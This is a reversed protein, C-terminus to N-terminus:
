KRNSLLFGILDTFDEASLTEGFNAPMPSSTTEKRNEIEDKPILTVKGQLDVLSLTADSENGQKILGNFVRGDSTAILSARFAADVNRNPLLIDEALRDLGRNGIGDLNPGVQKGVGGLQHCNACNKEFVQQGNVPDTQRSTYLQKRDQILQLLAADIPPITSVLETVRQNLQERGHAKLKEVLAARGLLSVTAKGADISEVLFSAGAPDSSLLDAVQTQEAVTMRSLSQAIVERALDVNATRVATIASEVTAADSKPFAVLEAAVQMLSGAGPQGASLDILTKCLESQLSRSQTSQVLRVVSGRLNGLQFRRIIEAALLRDGSRQDPNLGAVSFRGAALWAYAGGADQDVIEVYAPQGQWSRTDWTVPHATDNRPPFARQIVQGTAALKLQVFNKQQAPKGPDGDHGALFFRLSDPLEFPESRYVGTKQEGKIISSWLPTQQMGDTSNRRNSLVFINEAAPSTASENPLCTWSLADFEPEVTWKASPNLEEHPQFDGVAIWAFGKQDNGDIIEIRALQGAHKRTDLEVRQPTDRSPVPVEHIVQGSDTLLVRVQNRRPRDQAQVETPQGDHGAIRFSLTETLKIPISQLVGTTTEGRSLSDILYLPSQGAAAFQRVGFPTTKGSQTVSWEAAPLSLLDTAIESALSQISGPLERQQQTIGTRLSDLISLQFQRNGAFQNRAIAVIADISKVDAQRAAFELYATLKGPSDASLQQLNDVIFNAAAPSKVALCVDAFLSYAEAPVRPAVRTLRQSDAQFQDRLAIKAAHVLYRDGTRRAADLLAVLEASLDVTAHRAATLAAFRQVFPSTDELGTRILSALEHPTIQETTFESLLQQALCRVSEHQSKLDPKLREPTLRGTRQLTTLTWRALQGDTDPGTSQTVLELFRDLLASEQHSQEFIWRVIAEGRARNATTLESVLAPLQDKKLPTSASHFPAAADRRGADGRYVVKWIRGRERDRGPHNLDVEYHGIIRNYFDAIYLAGDLGFQLNVPRFWPDGPIVFDSEERATMSSGNYVLHNRNVRGTVVNGGFTSRRYVEPFASNEGLVVGGIGTSDHLHEMVNPIYGLGDHPKGFSDHHGGPLVLNIPKTHCDATFIDGFSDIAMGFPNVQGRSVVEIRSGDPRFRFINGSHMTVEHGDRGKVTSQNNFGHCAYIWGDNGLRFSSCMGHTDRSTDFPGYLIERQDVQDDGDTDHLYWIHPISFCIVGDGYPLLGMPINLGDAFTTVKDARGDQDTDELIKIADRPKTGPKAAFPYELSSSVWLRGREDFALNMPKHIDPEAAVLQIEFGPPLVFTQQQQEPPLPESSRVNEYFLQTGAQLPQAAWDAPTAEPNQLFLYSGLKNGVAIDPRGDGNIDTVTVQTGVGSRVDVLRPEFVVRDQQRVTKLWFLLPLQKAGPDGGGHAWFRKGTVLDKIGDGDMDVLAAAHLQSVALGYPNDKAQDSMITRPIFDIRSGSRVQEFWKLGYGHANQSCIVDNDGDGDFDYAFMQAGGGEAFRFPFFQFLEGPKQQKWWGNTELLDMRGDGDVDGVGLGHTFRGYGLGATIPTHSFKVEGAEVQPQIMVYDGRHLCVLERRGDGNLDVFAPSENSVETSVLHRTWNQDGRQGQGPNELWYGADGPMGVILIDVHGDQNFDDTWTFFHQSYGKISLGRDAASRTDAPDHQLYRFRQRYDPGAYWFPGSVVDLNGDGDIDGVAIGESHFEETLTLRDFGIERAPLTDRALLTVPSSNSVLAFAFLLGFLNPPLM